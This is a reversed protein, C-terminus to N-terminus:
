RPSPTMELQKSLFEAMVRSNVIQAAESRFAHGEQNFTLLWVPVKRSKLAEFLRTSEAYPVRPDNRGHALLLPKGLKDLHRAPSISDLFAAMRPDREDGYEVRRLDRRYGSTEKLFSPFHTIGVASIGGRLRDGYRILSSLAMFGGYSRGMVAVQAPDLDPRTAIWDLLAGIDKVAGLRAYGDDAKLYAKGYGSSGRVNPYIVAIGLRGVLYQTFPDFGARAQLEPGGHINILVPHRRIPRPAASDAGGAGSPAGSDGPAPAPTYLWAPIRRPERAVPLRGGRQSTAPLSDFTPYEVLEPERFSERPLGATESETWRTAKRATLRYTYAEGPFAAGNVTFGFEKGSPHFLAGDIIGKPVGQLRQGALPTVGPRIAHLVSLGQENVSYVLTRRDGGAHVWEVDWRVPPTLAVPKDEGYRLLWLRHADGDRDSTFALGLTRGTEPLRVWVAHDFFQAPEQPLLRTVEGGPLSLVHLESEAASVYRQLAVRRGDPSWDMPVWTGPRSLLLTDWAPAGEGPHRGGASPRGMRIDWRDTGPPTHAYLFATGSDNWAAASVRGAPCALSRTNGTALDLLRLAFDEDGGNDLAILAQQRGPVPNLVWQDVRRRFFTAQRRDALPEALRYLQPHPGMRTLMYIGTPGWGAFAASRVQSYASLADDSTAPDPAADLAAQSAAAAAAPWSQLHYLPSPASDGPPPAASALAFALSGAAFSYRFAMPVLLLM